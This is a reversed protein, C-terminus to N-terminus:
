CTTRSVESSISREKLLCMGGAIGELKKKVGHWSVQASKANRFGGLEAFVKYDIQLNYL